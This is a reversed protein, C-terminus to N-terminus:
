LFQIERSVMKLLYVFSKVSDSMFFICEEVNHLKNKDHYLKTFFYEKLLVYKVGPYSDLM